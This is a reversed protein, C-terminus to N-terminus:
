RRSQDVAAAQRRLRSRPRRRRLEGRAAQRGVRVPGAADRRLRQHQVGAAPRARRVRRLQVPACRRLAARGARDAARRGPRGGDPLGRRPLVHVAVGADARLPDARAGAGAVGGAGGAARGSRASRRGAGVRRARLAAGGGAGGQGEGGAGRTDSAPGGEAEAAASLRERIDVNGARDRDETVQDVDTMPVSAKPAPSLDRLSAASTSRSGDVGRRPRATMAGSPMLDSPRRADDAPAM